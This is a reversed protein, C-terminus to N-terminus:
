PWVREQLSGDNAVRQTGFQLVNLLHQLGRSRENGGKCRAVRALHVYLVAKRTNIVFQRHRLSTAELRRFTTWSHRYFNFCEIEDADMLLASQERILDLM